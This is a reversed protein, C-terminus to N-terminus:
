VTTTKKTAAASILDKKMPRANDFVDLIKLIFLLPVKLYWQLEVSPLMICELHPCHLKEFMSKFYLKSEM